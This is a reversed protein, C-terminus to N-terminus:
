DRADFDRMEAAHDLLQQGRELLLQALAAPVWDAVPREGNAWRRILRDDIHDRPGDPHYPGLGRALSRQWLDGWLAEGAAALAEPTLRQDATSM